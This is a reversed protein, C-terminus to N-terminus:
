KALTHGNKQLKYFDGVVLWVKFEGGAIVMKHIADKQKARQLVREEISGETVM